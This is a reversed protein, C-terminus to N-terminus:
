GPNLLPQSAHHYAKRLANRAQRYGKLTRIMAPVESVHELLHILLALTNTEGSDGVAARVASPLEDDATDMVARLVLFPLTIRAALQALRGSEMDVSTAGTRKYLQAKTGAQHVIETVSLLEGTDVRNLQRIAGLVREHWEPDVEFIEGNELRVRKPLLLTGPALDPDLGGATGISVLGRAGIDITRELMAEAGTLGIGTQIFIPRASNEFEISAECVMRERATAAAFIIPGAASRSEFPQEKFDPAAQRRM